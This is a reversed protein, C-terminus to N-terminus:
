AAGVLSARQPSYVKATSVKPKYGRQKSIDVRTRLEAQSKVINRKKKTSKRIQM